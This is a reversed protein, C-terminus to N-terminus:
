RNTAPAVAVLAPGPDTIPVQGFSESGPFLTLDTERKFPGVQGPGPTGEVEIQSSLRDTESGAMEDAKEINQGREM